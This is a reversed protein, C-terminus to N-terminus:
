VFPLKLFNGSNAPAIIPEDRFTFSHIFFPVNVDKKAMHIRDSPFARCYPSGVTAKEKV